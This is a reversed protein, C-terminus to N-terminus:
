RQGSRAAAARRAEKAGTLVAGDGRRDACGAELDITSSAAVQPRHHIEQMLIKPALQRRSSASSSSRRREPLASAGRMSPAKLSCVGSQSDNKMDGGERIAVALHLEFARAIPSRDATV